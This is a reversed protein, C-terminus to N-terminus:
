LDATEADAEVREAWKRYESAQEGHEHECSDALSRLRKAWRQAAWGPPVEGFRVRGGTLPEPERRTAHGRRRRTPM